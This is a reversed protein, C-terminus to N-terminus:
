KKKNPILPFAANFCLEIHSLDSECSIAEWEERTGEFRVARLETCAAFADKGISKISAPIYIEKLTANTESRFANDGIREVDYWLLRSPIFFVDGYRKRCYTLTLSGVSTKYAIGLKELLENSTFVVYVFFSIAGILAGWLLDKYIAAFVAGMFGIFSILVICLYFRTVRAYRVPYLEFPDEAPAPAAKKEDLEM